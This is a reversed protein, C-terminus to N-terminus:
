RIEEPAPPAPPSQIGEQLQHRQKSPHQREFTCGHFHAPDGGRPNKRGGSLSPANRVTTVNRGTCCLPALDIPQRRSRSLSSESSSLFDQQRRLVPLPGAIRRHTARQRHLRWRPGVKRHEAATVGAPISMVGSRARSGFIGSISGIRRARPVRSRGVCRVTLQPCRAVSTFPCRWLSLLSGTKLLVIGDM